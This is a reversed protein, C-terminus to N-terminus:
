KAKKNTAKRYYFGCWKRIYKTSNIYQVIYKNVILYRQICLIPDVRGIKNDISVMLFNITFAIFRLIFEM